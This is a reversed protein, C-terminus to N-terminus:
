DLDAACVLPADVRCTGDVCSSGSACADTCPEGAAPPATCTGDQCVGDGACTAQLLGGNPACPQGVAPLATCVKADQDCYADFSCVDLVGLCTQGIAPLATCTSSMLDDVPVCYAGGDCLDGPQCAAGKAVITRKVCVADECRVDQVCSDGPVGDPETCPTGAADTGYFIKCATYLGAFADLDDLLESLSLCGVADYRALLDGMCEADYVLGAAEGAAIEADLNAQVAAECAAVDAFQDSYDACDCRAWADCLSASATQPADDVPVPDGDIDGLGGGGGDDGCAGTSLVLVLRIWPRLTRLDM